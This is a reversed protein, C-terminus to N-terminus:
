VVVPLAPGHGCAGHRDGPVDRQQGAAGGPAHAGRKIGDFVWVHEAGGASLHGSCQDCDGRVRGGAVNACQYDHLQVLGCQDGGAGGGRRWIYVLPPTGVAEVSFSAEGGVLAIQGTPHRTIVPRHLVTLFAAPSLQANVDDEVLVTYVGHDALSLNSFSLSSATAGPLNTGNFQWQNRLPGQGVAVVSLIANSGNTVSQSLPPVVIFRVTLTASASLVTMTADTVIVDYSGAQALRVRALALVANTEGGLELGNFRWQYRLDGSGSAQVNFAVAEGNTAVQSAPSAIVQLPLLVTLRAPPTMISGAANGVLVNYEGADVGQVRSLLLVANSAGIVPLGNRFWQYSLPEAGTATVQFVAENDAYVSQNTPGAVVAPPAQLVLTAPGSLTAGLANSVLVSYSGAQSAQLNTLTL